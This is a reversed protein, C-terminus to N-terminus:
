SNASDKVWLIYYLSFYYNLFLLRKNLLCSQKNHALCQLSLIFSLLVM